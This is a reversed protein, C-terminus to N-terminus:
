VLTSRDIHMDHPLGKSPRVILHKFIKISVLTDTQDGRIGGPWDELHTTYAVGQCGHTLSIAFMMM